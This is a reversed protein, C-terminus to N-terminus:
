EGRQHLEARLELRHSDNMELLRVTARGIPTQGIIKTNVLEFHQSWEHHRPHFLSVVEGSLPDISTLNSLKRANCRYCALALNESATEGGHQQAVIHDIHHRVPLAHEPLLCYECCNGARERVM